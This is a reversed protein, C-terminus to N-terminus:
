RTTPRRRRRGICLAAVALLALPGPAPIASLYQWDSGFEVVSGLAISRLDSISVPESLTLTFLIGNSVARQRNPMGMLAPQAAIGGFPGNVSANDGNFDTRPPSGVGMSTSIIQPLSQLFDGGFNNTWLWEDAVSDGAGLSGWAGLGTSGDGIVASDGSLILVSGLDFGLSVLLSDSVEFGDPVSTSTNELLITLTSGDIDWTSRAALGDIGYPNNGGADPAYTVVLDARAGASLCLAGAVVALLNRISM